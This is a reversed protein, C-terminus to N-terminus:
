RPHVKLSGGGQKARWPAIGAQGEEPLPGAKLLRPTLASLHAAQIDTQDRQTKQKASHQKAHPQLAQQRVMM